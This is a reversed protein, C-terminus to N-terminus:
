DPVVAVPTSTKMAATIDVADARRGRAHSFIRYIGAKALDNKVIVMRNGIKTPRQLREVTKDPHM